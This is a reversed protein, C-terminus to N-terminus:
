DTTTLFEQLWAQSPGTPGYFQKATGRFLVLRTTEGTAEVIANLAYDFPKGNVQIANVAVLQDGPKLVPSVTAAISDEKLSQVFIGGYKEDNEEFIIGMPKPLHVTIYNNTDM